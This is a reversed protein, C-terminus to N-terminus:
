RLRLDAHDGQGKDAIFRLADGRKEVVQCNYELAEGGFALDRCFYGGDWNWAGTVEKGFARGSIDGDPTVILTIGFRKLERGSILAVFSERSEVRTVSEAAAQAPALLGILLASTTALHRVM